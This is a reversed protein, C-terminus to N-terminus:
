HSSMSILSVSSSPQTTHTVTDSVYWRLISQGHLVYKRPVIQPNQCNHSRTHKRYSLFSFPSNFNSGFACSCTVERMEDGRGSPPEPAIDCVNGASIMGPLVARTFVANPMGLALGDPIPDAAIIQAGLRPKQHHIRKRM